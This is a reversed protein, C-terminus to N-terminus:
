LLLAEAEVTVHAVGEVGAPTGVVIRPLPGATTVVRSSASAIVALLVPTTAGLWHPGLSETPM